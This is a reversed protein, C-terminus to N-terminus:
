AYGIIQNKERFHFHRLTSYVHYEHSRTEGSVAWSQSVDPPSTLYCVRAVYRIHAHSSILNITSLIFMRSSLYYLCTLHVRHFVHTSLVFRFCEGITNINMVDRVVNRIVFMNGLACEFWEFVLFFVEWDVSIIWWRSILKDSGSGMGWGDFIM